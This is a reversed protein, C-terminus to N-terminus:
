SANPENRKSSCQLGELGKLVAVLEDHDYPKLIVRDAQADKARAEARAPTGATMLVVRTGRTRPESRLRRCVEWGDLGPMVNDLLVVDPTTALAKELGAAGDYARDVDFGTSTLRLALMEVLDEEDDIILLKIPRGATENM